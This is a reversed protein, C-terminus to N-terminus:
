MRVKKQSPPVHVEDEAVYADDVAGASGRVAGVHAQVAATDGGHATLAIGGQGPVAGQVRVAEGQGGAEDVHVRVAIERQEAVGRM